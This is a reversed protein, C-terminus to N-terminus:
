NLLSPAEKIICAALDMVIQQQEPTLMITTEKKDNGVFLIKEIKTTSLKKLLSPTSTANRYIFHFIGECNMSGSNRQTQKQKSGAFFVLATSADTFCKDPGSITFLFDIEQKNADMTLSAGELPIFGTSITKLKTYPDVKHQLKCDQAQLFVPALIFILFFRKM